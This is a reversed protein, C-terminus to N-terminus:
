GSCITKWGGPVCRGNATRGRFCGELALMQQRFWDPLKKLLLRATEVDEEFRRATLPYLPERTFLAALLYGYAYDLLAEFGGAHDALGPLDRLFALDRRMWALEDSMRRELLRILGTRTQRYAEHRDRFLRLDVM